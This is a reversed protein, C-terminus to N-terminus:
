AARKHRRDPRWDADASNLKRLETWNERRVRHNYIPNMMAIYSEVDACKVMRTSLYEMKAMMRAHDYRANGMLNSIAYVFRTDKWFKVHKSWDLLANAVSVAYDLDNCKYHGHRFGENMDRRDGYHCLNMGMSITLFSYRNLFDHLRLYDAKGEVCWRHLYHKDRWKSVADTTMTIHEITARESVIYYIPVGLAEAVKLRHQGDTVHFDPTVVIPFERLLNVKVVSAYLKELKDPDIPRNRPDFKFMSYNVSARVINDQGEHYVSNSM